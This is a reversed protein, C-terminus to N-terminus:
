LQTDSLFGLTIVNHCITSMMCQTESYVTPLYGYRENLACSFCSSLGVFRSTAVTM